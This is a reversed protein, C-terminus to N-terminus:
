QQGRCSAQTTPPRTRKRPMVIRHPKRKRANTPAVPLNEQGFRIAVHADKSDAQLTVLFKHCNFLFERVVAHKRQNLETRSFPPFEQAPRFSVVPSFFLIIPLLTQCRLRILRKVRMNLHSVALIILKGSLVNKAMPLLRFVFSPGPM